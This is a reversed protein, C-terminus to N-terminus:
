GAACKDGFTPNAISVVGISNGCVQVPIHVPVQINNGSVLGPSGTASGQAGSDALAAGTSGLVAGAALAGAVVATRIRM